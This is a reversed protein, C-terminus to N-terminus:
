TKKTKKPKPAVVEETVDSKRKRTARLRDYQDLACQFQERQRAELTFGSKDDGAKLYYRLKDRRDSTKIMDALSKKRYKGFSMKVRKVQEWTVEDDSFEIESHDSMNFNNTNKSHSVFFM